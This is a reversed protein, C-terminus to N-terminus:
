RLRMLMCMATCMRCKDQHECLRQVAVEGPAGDFTDAAPLSAGAPLGLLVARLEEEMAQGQINIVRSISGLLTIIEEKTGYPLSSLVGTVYALFSLDVGERTQPDKNDFKALLARTFQNREHRKGRLFSYVRSFASDTSSDAKLFQVNGFATHQFRYSLVVGDVSRLNLLAHHKEDLYNLVRVVRNCVDADRDAELAVLHPVCEIPHVLGQRLIVGILQVAERRVINSNDHTLALLKPLYLQMLGGSLGTESSKSVSDDATDSFTTSGPATTSAEAAAPPLTNLNKREDNVLVESLAKLVREKIKVKSGKHM